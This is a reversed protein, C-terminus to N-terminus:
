SIWSTRKGRGRGRRWRWLYKVGAQWLLEVGIHLEEDSAGGEEKEDRLDQRNGYVSRSDSSSLRTM